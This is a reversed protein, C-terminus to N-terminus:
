LWRSVRSGSPLKAQSRGPDPSYGGARPVSPVVVTRDPGAEPVDLGVVRVSQIRQDIMHTLAATILDERTPFHHQAAGRSVGAAAAVAGM